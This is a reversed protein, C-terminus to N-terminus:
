KRDSKGAPQSAAGPITIEKLPHDTKFELWESDDGSKQANMFDRLPHAIPPFPENTGDLLQTLNWTGLLKGRHDLYYAWQTEERYRRPWAFVGYGKTGVDAGGGAQERSWARDDGRAPDALYLAFYYDQATYLEVPPLDGKASKRPAKEVRFDRFIPERSLEPLESLFKFHGSEELAHIEADHIKSLARTIRDERKAMGAGTSTSSVISVIMFCAAAALILEGTHFLIREKWDRRLPEAM